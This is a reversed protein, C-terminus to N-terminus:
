QSVYQMDGRHASLPSSRFQCRWIPPAPNLICTPQRKRNPSHITRTFFFAPSGKGRQSRDNFFVATAVTVPREIWDSWRRTIPRNSDWKQGLHMVTGQIVRFTLSVVTQWHAHRVRGLARGRQSPRCTRHSPQIIRARSHKGHSCPLFSRVRVWGM